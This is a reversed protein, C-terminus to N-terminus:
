LNIKFKYITTIRLCASYRRGRKVASNLLSLEVTLVERCKSGGEIAMEKRKELKIFEVFEIKLPLTKRM